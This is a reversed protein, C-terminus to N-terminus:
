RKRKKKKKSRNKGTIVVEFTTRERQAASRRFTSQQKKDKDATDETEVEILRTAGKKKAEIDIIRKQQGIPMPQDFGKIDARVNWGARKLRNARRRVEKEHKSKTKKTRRKSM